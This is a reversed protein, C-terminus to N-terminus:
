EEKLLLLASFVAEGDVVIQTHTNHRTGRVHIRYHPVLPQVYQYQQAARAFEQAEAFSILPAGALLGRIERYQANTIPVQIGRLQFRDEGPDLRRQTFLLYEERITIAGVEEAGAGSWTIVVEEFSRDAWALAETLPFVAHEYM